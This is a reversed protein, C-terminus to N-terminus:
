RTRMSQAVLPAGATGDEGVAVMCGLTPNWCLGAFSTLVGTGQTTCTQDTWTVGADSSVQIYISSIVIVTGDGDAVVATPASTLTGVSASLTGTAADIQRVDTGAFVLFKESEADYVVHTVTTAPGLAVTSWTTGDTSTIICDDAGAGTGVAVWRGGGYAVDRLDEATGSTRSTWATGNTSSYLRGNDGVAIALTGADNAAIAKFHDGSGPGAATWAGGTNSAHYYIVGSNAAILWKNVSGGMWAIDNLTGTLSGSLDEWSVGDTSRQARGGGGAAFIAMFADLEGLWPRTAVAVAATPTGSTAHTRIIWNVLPVMALYAAWGGLKNLIWNFHDAPFREGPEVGEAQKAPAPAVKTPEGDWAEGTATYTEDTAWTPVDLPRTAM